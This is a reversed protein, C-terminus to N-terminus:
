ELIYNRDTRDKSDKSVKWQRLYHKAAQFVVEYNHVGLSDNLRSGM